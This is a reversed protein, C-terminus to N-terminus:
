SAGRAGGKTETFAEASSLLVAATRLKQTEKGETHINPKCSLGGTGAQLKEPPYAQKALVPSPCM